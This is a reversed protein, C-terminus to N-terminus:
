TLDVVDAAVKAVKAVKGSGETCGQAAAQARAAARARKIAGPAGHVALPQGATLDIPRHVVSAQSGKCATVPIGALDVPATRTAKPSDNLPATNEESSGRAQFTATPAAATSAPLGKLKAIAADLSAKTQLGPRLHSFIKLSSRHSSKAGWVVSLAALHKRQASSMLVMGLGPSNEDAFFSIFSLLLTTLTYAPSWTEPHFSSFSTCIKAGVAFRGNPTLMIFDPPSYPYDQPLQIQVFLIPYMNM